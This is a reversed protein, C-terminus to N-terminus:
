FLELARHRALLTGNVMNFYYLIYSKGNQFKSISIIHGAM